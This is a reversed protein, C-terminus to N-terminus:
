HIITHGPGTFGPFIPGCIGAAKVHVLATGAEACPKKVEECVYDGIGHLVYAKM